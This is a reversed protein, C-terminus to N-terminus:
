CGCILNKLVEEENTLIEEDYDDVTIYMDYKIEKPRTIGGVKTLDGNYGKCEM